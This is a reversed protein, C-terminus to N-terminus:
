PQCPQGLVNLVFACMMIGRVVLRKFNGFVFTSTTLLCASFNKLGPMERSGFRQLVLGVAQFDATM